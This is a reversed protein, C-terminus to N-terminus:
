HAIQDLLTFRVSRATVKATFAGAARFTEGTAVWPRRKNTPNTLLVAPAAFPAAASDALVFRLVLGQGKRLELWYEGEPTPVVLAHPLKSKVGGFALRYAGTRAVRVPEPLWGLQRKEYTSFDAFGEGM